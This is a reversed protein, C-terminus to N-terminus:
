VEINKDFKKVFVYETDDSFEEAYVYGLRDFNQIEDPEAINKEAM